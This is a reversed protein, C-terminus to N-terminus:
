IRTWPTIKDYLLEGTIANVTMKRRIRNEDLYIIEKVKSNSKITSRTQLVVMGKHKERAQKLIESLSLEKGSPKLNYTNESIVQGTYADQVIEHRKHQRDALEIMRVLEGNRRDLWSRILNKEPHKKHILALSKEIPMPAKLSASSILRATHADYVTRIWQQKSNTFNIVYVLTKDQHTLRASRVVLEGHQKRTEAILKELPQPPVSTSTQPKPAPPHITGIVDPPLLTLFFFLITIPLHTANPIRSM